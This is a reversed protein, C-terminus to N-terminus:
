IIAIAKIIRALKGHLGSIQFPRSRRDGIAPPLLPEFSSVESFCVAVRIPRHERVCDRVRWSCDDMVNVVQVRIASRPRSHKIWMMTCRSVIRGAPIHFAIRFHKRFSYFTYAHGLRSVSLYLSVALSRTTFCCCVSAVPYGAGDAFAGFAGFARVAAFIYITIQSLRSPREDAVCARRANMSRSAQAHARQLSIHEM